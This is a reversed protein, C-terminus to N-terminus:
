NFFITISKFAILIHKLHLLLACSSLNGKFYQIIQLLLDIMRIELSKWLEATVCNWQARDSMKLYILRDGDACDCLWHPTGHPMQVRSCSIISNEFKARLFEINLSKKQCFHANAIRLLNRAVGSSWYNVQLLSKWGFYKDDWGPHM